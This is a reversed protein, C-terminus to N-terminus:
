RGRLGVWHGVPGGEEGLGSSRCKGWRVRMREGSGGGEGRHPSTAEASRHAEEDTRVRCPPPRPPREAEGEVSRRRGGKTGGSDICEGPTSSRAAATAAESAAAATSQLGTEGRRM